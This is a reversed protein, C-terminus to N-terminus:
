VLDRGSQQRSLVRMADVAAMCGTTLSAESIAVAVKSLGGCLEVEDALRLYFWNETWPTSWKNKQAQVPVEVGTCYAFTCVGFQGLLEVDGDKIRRPQTHVRHLRVFGGLDPEVGQSRSAGGCM